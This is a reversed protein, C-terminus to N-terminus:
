SIRDCGHCGDRAPGGRAALTREIRRMRDSSMVNGIVVAAMANDPDLAAAAVGHVHGAVPAITRPKSGGSLGYPAPWRPISMAVGIPVTTTAGSAPTTVKAPLTPPRKNRVMSWPPPTVLVHEHSELTSTWLFSWTTRPWGTAVVSQPCASRGTGCRCKPTRLSPVYTSGM